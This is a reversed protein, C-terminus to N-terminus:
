FYIEDMNYKLLFHEDNNMRYQHVFNEHFIKGRCESDNEGHNMLYLVVPDFLNFTKRKFKQSIEPFRIHSDLESQKILSIFSTGCNRYFIKNLGDLYGIKKNKYDLLYGTYFVVDDCLYNSYINTIISEFDNSLIDDADCFMFFSQDEIQSFIKKLALLKKRKKDNMYEKIDKPPPFDALIFESDEVFDPKDHGCICIKTNKIKKISIYTSKLRLLVADFNKSTTQSRLPIAFNFKKM